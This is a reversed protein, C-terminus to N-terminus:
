RLLDLDRTPQRGLVDEMRREIEEALRRILCVRINADTEQYPFLSTLFALRSASSRGHM